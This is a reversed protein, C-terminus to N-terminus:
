KTTIHIGGNTTSAEIRPGGGNLRGELHRRSQEGQRELRLADDVHIGGNVVRAALDAKTDAPVTLSVGGNVTEFTAAGPLSDLVVDIGGNTTRAEVQGVLAQGKIGGNTTTVRVRNALQRLDIGGNVNTADFRVGRPLKVTYKVEHGDRGWTKPARTEIFVRNATAEEHIEIKKLLEGAAEDTSSRAIREAKVELPGGEAAPEVNISGNVNKLEFQGDANVTYTRAWTDTARGSALGVNFNGDAVNVDCAATSGAAAGLAVVLLSGRLLRRVM